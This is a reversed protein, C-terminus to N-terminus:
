VNTVEAGFNRGIIIAVESAEFVPSCMKGGEILALRAQVASCGLDRLSRAAAVAAHHRGGEDAGDSLFIRGARTMHPVFVQWPTSADAGPVINVEAQKWVHYPTYNLLKEGLNHNTEAAVELITGHHGTKTNVTFPMRMVRPLDRACMDVLCGENGVLDLRERLFSLWYGMCRTSFEPMKYQALGVPQLMDKVTFDRPLPNTRFTRAEGAAVPVIPYWAQMGRGSDIVYRHLNKEGVYNSLISHVKNLAKLPDPIVEEGEENFQVRDTTPDVDVLFWCWHTIDSTSVRTGNLKTSPNMGVYCNWGDAEAWDVANRLQSPNGCVIGYTREESGVKKRAFFRLASGPPWHRHM